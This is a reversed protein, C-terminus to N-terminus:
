FESIIDGAYLVDGSCTSYQLANKLDILVKGSHKSNDFLIEVQMFFCDPLYNTAQNYRVHICKLGFSLSADIFRTHNIHLHQSSLFDNMSFNDAKTSGDWPINRCNSKVATNLRYTDSSTNLEVAALERICFKINPEDGKQNVGYMWLGFTTTNLKFYQQVAHDLHEYLSSIDYLSYPPLSPPYARVDRSDEWNALMLHRLSSISHDIFEVHSMRM